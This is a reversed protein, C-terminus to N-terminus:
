RKVMSLARAGYRVRAQECHRGRGNCEDVEAKFEHRSVIGCKKKVRSLWRLTARTKQCYAATNRSTGRISRQISGLLHADSATKSEDCQRATRVFSLQTILLDSLNRIPRRQTAIAIVVTSRCHTLSRAQSRRDGSSRPVRRRLGQATRLSPRSRWSTRSPM